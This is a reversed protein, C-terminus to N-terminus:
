LALVLSDVEKQVRAVTIANMQALAKQEDIPLFLMSFMQINGRPEPLVVRHRMGHPPHEAENTPGVLVITATGFAEAIYVPGSDNAIIFSVRALLAKLEDISQGVANVVRTKPDMHQMM